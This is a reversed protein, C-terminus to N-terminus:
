RPTAPVADPSQRYKRLVREVYDQTERYPPVGNYKSVAGPGANYAALARRVQDPQNQYQLLLERLLRAGAEINQATDNPDANMARATAPMLQMVGIAGEPSIAKPDFASEARAVSEVFGPPLGHKLAAERVLERPTAPVASVSPPIPQPGVPVTEDVLQEFREVRDKPLVIEGTASFLAVNAGRDEHRQIRLAFGNSLVAIEGALSLAALFAFM